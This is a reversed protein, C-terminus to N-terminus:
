GPYAMPSITTLSLVGCLSNRGYLTGQPGRILDARRIDLLELDYSNKNLVPVDDIYLGIVPNDIRSGFGRLYITSTMASGYDPIHLNPIISSLDKPSKLGRNEMDKLYVSSVPSALREVPASQKFSTVLVSESLTDLIVKEPEPEAASVSLISLVLPLLM